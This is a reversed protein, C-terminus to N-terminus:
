YRVMCRSINMKKNQRNHFATKNSTSELFKIVLQQKKKVKNSHKNIKNPLQRTYKINRSHM